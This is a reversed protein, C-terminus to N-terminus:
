TYFGVVVIVMRVKLNFGRRSSIIYRYDNLQLKYQIILASEFLVSVADASQSLLLASLAMLGIKMMLLSAPPFLDSVLASVWAEIGIIFNSRCNGM